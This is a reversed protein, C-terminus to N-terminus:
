DIFSDKKLFFVMEKEPEFSVIIKEKRRKLSLVKKEFMLSIIFSIKKSTPRKPWSFLNKDGLTLIYFM